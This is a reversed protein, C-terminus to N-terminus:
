REEAVITCRSSTPNNPRAKSAGKQGLERCVLRLNWQMNLPKTPYFLRGPGPSKCTYSRMHFYTNFFRKAQITSHLSHTVRVTWNKTDVDLPSGFHLTDLCFSCSLASSYLYGVALSVVCLLFWDAVHGLPLRCVWKPLPDHATAAFSFGFNSHECPNYFAAAKKM